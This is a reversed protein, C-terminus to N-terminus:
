EGADAPPVAIGLDAVANLQIWRRYYPDEFDYAGLAPHQLVEDKVLQDVARSVTSKPGLDFRSLTESATLAVRPVAALVALVRQQTRPLDQWNREHLPAQEAVIVDFAASVSAPTIPKRSAAAIDWAQRALQVVDRTRHGAVRLIARASDADLSVGTAKARARMWDQFESEPIPGFELTDVAKWLGREPGRLFEAILTRSSGTLAYAIHAHREIAHKLAWGADDGGWKFLRQFEDIALGVVQKRAGIEKDLADLTQPLLTPSAAADATSLSLTFEPLGDPTPKWSVTAKLAAAIRELSKRWGAGIEHYVADLVRRAADDSGTAVNIDAVAVLHGRKRARNAAEEVASSKGMRRDGYYVIRRDVDTLALELRPIEAQRDALAVGTALRGIIFPNRAAM